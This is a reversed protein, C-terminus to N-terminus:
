KGMCDTLAKQEPACKKHRDALVKLDPMAWVKDGTGCVANEYCNHLAMAFDNCGKTIQKKADAKCEDGLQAIHKDTDACAKALAECRKDLDTAGAGAKGDGKSCGTLACAAILLWGLKRIAM